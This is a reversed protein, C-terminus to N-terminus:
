FLFHLSKNSLLLAALTRADRQRWYDRWIFILFYLQHPLSLPFFPADQMEVREEQMEVREEQMEVREEQM